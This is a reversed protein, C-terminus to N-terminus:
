WSRSRRLSDRLESSVAAACGRRRLRRRRLRQRACRGVVVGQLQLLLGLLQLLWTRLPRHQNRTCIHLCEDTGASRTHATTEPMCCCFSPVLRPGCHVSKSTATRTVCGHCVPRRGLCIRLLLPLHGCPVRCVAAGSLMVWIVHLYSGRVVEHGRQWVRCSGTQRSIGLCSRDTACVRLRMSAQTTTLWEGDSECQVSCMCALVMCSM